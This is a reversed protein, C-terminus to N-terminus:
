DEATSSQKSKVTRLHFMHTRGFDTLSWFLGMNGGVAESYKVNILGLTMLQLKITQFIQDEITATTGKGVSRTHLDSAYITKVKEDSPYKLLYPAILAFIESWTLEIKWRRKISKEWYNGELNYPEDLDALNEIETTKEESTRLKKVLEELEHNRKRANSLESLAETSSIQDARVWGIAPYTKITKTLSLAVLGPLEETRSWYKVLRGTAVNERFEMLRRRLDPDIDSKEVSIEDPKEHLFALVKLGKELAYEYEKETYSIGESTTSGYRGGIILIYYDCDDIIKKIFDMQEDDAAPFLEMGAPICDMEMLTQIVRSREDKLDAYTSSVFVQYRKNAM